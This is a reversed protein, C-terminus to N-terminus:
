SKVNELGNRPAWSRGGPRKKHDFRTPEVCFTIRFGPDWIGGMFLVDDEVEMRNGFGTGAGRPAAPCNGFGSGASRPATPRGPAGPAPACNGFGAGAGRPAAPYNGFGTGAGRPTAGGM